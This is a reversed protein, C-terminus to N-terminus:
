LSHLFTSPLVLQTSTNSSVFHACTEPDPELRMHGPEVGQKSYSGLCARKGERHGKQCFPFTFIKNAPNHYSKLSFPHLASLVRLVLCNWENVGSHRGVHLCPVHCRDSPAEMRSGLVSLLLSLADRPM